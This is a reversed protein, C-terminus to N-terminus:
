GAECIDPVPFPRKFDEHEGRCAQERSVVEIKRGKLTIWVYTPEESVELEYDKIWNPPVASYLIDILLPGEAASIECVSGYAYPKRDACDIDTGLQLGNVFVNPPDYWTCSIYSDCQQQLIYVNTANDRLMPVHVAHDRPAHLTCGSLAVICMLVAVPSIHVKLM